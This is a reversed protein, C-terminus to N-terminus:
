GTGLELKRPPEYHGHNHGMVGLKLAGRWIDLM